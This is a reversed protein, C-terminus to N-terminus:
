NAKRDNIRYLHVDWPEFTDKFIGDKSLITRNEGLVEVDKQGVLSHLTFTANTTGNRMGVAFLYNAAEYKKAMVAIPVDKNESSVDVIDRVTASNLVPALRIIQQNIETVASLMEKDSLLASEDFRPQWEHVFYILGMSGHIISM